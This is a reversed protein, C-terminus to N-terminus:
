LHSENSLNFEVVFEVLVSHGWFLDVLHNLLSVSIGNVGELQSVWEMVTVNEEKLIGSFLEQLLSILVWNKEEVWESSPDLIIVYRKVGSHFLM